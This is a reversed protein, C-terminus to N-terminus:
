CLTQQPNRVTRMWMLLVAEWTRDSNKSHEAQFFQALWYNTVGRELQVAEQSMSTSIDSLHSLEYANLPPAEGRLFGQIM